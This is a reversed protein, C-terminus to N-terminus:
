LDEDGEYPAAVAQALLIRAVCFVAQDVTRETPLSKFITRTFSTKPNLHINVFTANVKSQYLRLLLRISLGRLFKAGATLRQTDEQSSRLYVLFWM